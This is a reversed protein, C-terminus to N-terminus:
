ASVAQQAPLPTVSLKIRGGPLPTERVSHGARRAESTTKCVAYAQLLKDLEAREGWRGEYNDFRVGGALDFVVPYTWNPLEVVEGTVVGADFFRVSRNEPQKLNLRRCAAALSERDRVEVAVQVIHSM